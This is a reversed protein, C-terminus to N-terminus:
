ALWTLHVRLTPSKREVLSRKLFTVRTEYDTYGHVLRRNSVLKM